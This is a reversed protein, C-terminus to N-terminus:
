SDNKILSFAPMDNRDLWTYSDFIEVNIANQMVEEFQKPIWCFLAQSTRNAYHYYNSKLYFWTDIPPVDSEDVFCKSAVIPAGDSTTCCTEFCIIKGLSDLDSIDLDYKKDRAEIVIALLLEYTATNYDDLNWTAYDGDFNYLKTENISPNTQRFVTGYFGNEFDFDKSLRATHNIVQKLQATFETIENDSWVHQGIIIQESTKKTFFSSIFKFLRM